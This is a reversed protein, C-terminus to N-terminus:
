DPRPSRGLGVVSCPSGSREGKHDITVAGESVVLGAASPAQEAAGDVPREVALLGVRPYVAVVEPECLGREMGIMGDIRAEPQAIALGRGHSWGAAGANFFQRYLRLM